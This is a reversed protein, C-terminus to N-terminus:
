KIFRATQDGIKVVYYGAPLSSVNLVTSYQGAPWEMATQLVPRGVGDYVVVQANQSQDADLLLELQGNQVPNTAIQINQAAGLRVLVSSSVQDLGDFAISRLRYFNAGAMPANDTFAYRNVVNSNGNGLVTGIAEFSKGNQSREVVFRDNNIEMATQWSLNVGSNDSKKTAQFGQLEIPMPATVVFTAKYNSGSNSSYATGCNNVGRGYVEMTYTGPGLGALVNTNASNALWKENNGTGCACITCITSNYFIEEPTFSGSPSGSPYVRWDLFVNSFGCGIELYVKMEAGYLRLTGGEVFTGLNAGNFDPNGTSAQLDYYQGSGGIIIYSEYIGYCQSQATYGALIFTLLTFIKKMFCVKQAAPAEM